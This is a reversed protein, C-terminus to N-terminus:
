ETVVKLLYSNLENLDYVAETEKTVKLVEELYLEEQYRRLVNPKIENYEEYDYTEKLSKDILFYANGNDYVEESKGFGANHSIDLVDPHERQLVSLTDSSVEVEHYFVYLPNSSTIVRKLPEESELAEKMLEFYELKKHEDLDLHTYYIKVFDLYYSDDKVYYTDKNEEYFARVEEDPINSLYEEIYVQRIGDIETNIFVESNYNKLGYVVIGSEIKKANSNNLDDKRTTIGEFSSDDILSTRIGVQYHASRLKLEEIISERLDDIPRGLTYQKEWNLSENEELFSSYKHRIISRQKKINMDLEEISVPESNLLLDIENHSNQARLYVGGFVFIICAVVISLKKKINM